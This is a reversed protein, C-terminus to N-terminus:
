LKGTAFTFCAWAATVGVLACVAVGVGVGGVGPSYGRMVLAIWLFPSVMCWQMVLAYVSLGFPAGWGRGQGMGASVAMQAFCALLLGLMFLLCALSLYDRATQTSILQPHPLPSPLAPVVTFM